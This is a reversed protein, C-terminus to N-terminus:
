PLLRQSAEPSRVLIDKDRSFWRGILIISLTCGNVIGWGIPQAAYEFTWEPITLLVPVSSFLFLTWAFINETRCNNWASILNPIGGFTVVILSIGIAYRPDSTWLWFLIGIAGGVLYFAEKRTWVTEGRGKYALVLVLLGCSMGAILQGNLAHKALMGAFTLGDLMMWIIWSVLSPKAKGQRISQIYPISGGVMLAVALWSGITQTNM